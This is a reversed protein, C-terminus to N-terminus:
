DKSKFAELAKLENQVYRSWKAQQERNISNNSEKDYLNQMISLETNINQHLRDLISKLANSVKLQSIQKRFKRVHLETIDFHLQEHALIYADAVSKNYWSKDPYFIHKLRQPFILM